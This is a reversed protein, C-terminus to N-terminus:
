FQINQIFINVEKTSLETMDLISQRVNNQINQAVEAINMGFNISCYIDVIIEGHDDQEIKVGKSSSVKGLKELADTTFNSQMKAVGEIESTAINAITELVEPAIEITGQINKTNIM